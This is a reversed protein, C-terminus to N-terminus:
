TPFLLIPRGRSGMDRPHKLGHFRIHNKPVPLRQYAHTSTSNACQFCTASIPIEKSGRTAVTQPRRNLEVLNIQRPLRKHNKQDNCRSLYVSNTLRWYCDQAHMYSCLFMVCSPNIYINLSGSFLLRILTPNLLFGNLLSRWSCLM